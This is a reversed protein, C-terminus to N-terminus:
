EEESDEESDEESEEESEEAEAAKVAEAAKKVTEAEAEEREIREAWSYFGLVGHIAQTHFFDNDVQLMKLIWHVHGVVKGHSQDPQYAKEIWHWTGLEQIMCAWYYMPNDGPCLPNQARHLSETEEQHTGTQDGNWQSCFRSPLLCPFHCSDAQPKPCRGRWHQFKEWTTRFAELNPCDPGFVHQIGYKFTFPDHRWHPYFDPHQAMLCIICQEQFRDVFRRLQAERDAVLQNKTLTLAHTQQFVLERGHCFDCPLDSAQCQQELQDNYMANLYARRCGDLRVYQQILEEELSSAKQSPRTLAFVISHGVTQPDRSLRGSQQVWDTLGWPLGYHIVLDIDPFDFGASIASTCALIHRKGQLFNQLHIAKEELDSYYPEVLAPYINCFEILDDKGRFYVITRIPTRPQSPSQSPQPAGRTGPASSLGAAPFVPRNGTPAGVSLMRIPVQSAPPRTPQTQSAPPYTGTAFQAQPPQCIDIDHIFQMIEDFHQIRVPESASNTKSLMRVSYYINPRNINARITMHPPISLMTTLEDFIHQPFTASIYIKQTRVLGLQRTYKFSSRFERSTPLLHAEDFIMRDLEGTAVLSLVWKMFHPHSISEISALVLCLPPTSGHQDEWMVCPIGLSQARTALDEKLARLPVMILSTHAWQLSAALLYLTSKGGATPLIISLNPTGKLMYYLAVLQEPTKFEAEPMGLFERLLLLLPNRPPRTRLSSSLHSLLQGPRTPIAPVGPMDPDPQHAESSARHQSIQSLQSPPSDPAEHSDGLEVQLYQQLHQLFVTEIKTDPLKKGYLLAKTHNVSTPQHVPPLQNGMCLQYFFPWAEPSLSFFHHFQISFLAM